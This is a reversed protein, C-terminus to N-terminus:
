KCSPARPQEHLLGPPFCGIRRYAALLRSHELVTRARWLRGNGLADKATRAVASFLKRDTSNVKSTTEGPAVPEISWKEVWSILRSVRAAEESPPKSAVKIVRVDPDTVAAVLQYPQLILRVIGSENPLLEGTSLRRVPADRSLKLEVTVPYRERNVAYFWYQDKADLTRVTVPDVADARSQFPIGPLRRFEALFERVIAPGFTYGNGGDGLTLADTEALALAYRELAHRGSPNTAASAWTNKTGPKFGLDIAPIVADTAELYFTGMMFQGGSGSKVMSAIADHDLLMDRWGHSLGDEDFRGHAPMANVLVVGEISNLLVPDIGM